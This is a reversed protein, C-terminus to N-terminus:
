PQPRGEADYAVVPLGLGALDKGIVDRDGVVVIVFDKWSGAAAQAAAGDVAGIEGPLERYTTLPRGDTVLAAFAGAISGNTEFDQPLSREIQAKAKSLEAAPLPAKSMGDILELAEKIGAVTVDTRISSSFSWSGAWQARWYSSFAGYTYGLEERLKSNLRSAFSGGVAMNAVDSAARAAPAMEVATPAPRGIRVVSQPAGPRHVLAIFPTAPRAAPTRAMRKVKTKWGGLHTKLLAELRDRSVDGAVVITTAAPGYHTQWFTKVDALTLKDVTGVYGGGAQGYPHGAHVIADFALVALARPQDPRLELDAKREAKVRAFDAAAFRPRVLVDALLAMTPDLTDALTDISLRTEDPGSGIALDAGLRELEESLALAGRKGAGEDLLDATLAALGARAGDGRTGAEQALVRVSVLPLRHNEVLVVSLGNALEFTTPVPATFPAEPWAAPPTSWDIGAASWDVDPPAAPPTPEAPAVPTPAVPTPEVPITGTARPIPPCCSALSAAGIAAGLVAVLWPAAGPASATTPRLPRHSRM